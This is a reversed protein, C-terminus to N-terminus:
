RDHHQKEKVYNVWVARAEALLATVCTEVDDYGGRPTFAPSISVGLIEEIVCIVEVVVLSDIEPRM